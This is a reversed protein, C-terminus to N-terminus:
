PRIQTNFATEAPSCSVAGEPPKAFTSFVSRVNQKAKWFFITTLFFFSLMCRNSLCMFAAYIVKRLNFVPSFFGQKETMVDRSDRPSKYYSAIQMTGLNLVYLVEQM